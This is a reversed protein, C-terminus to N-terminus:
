MCGAKRSRSTFVRRHRGDDEPRMASWHRKSRLRKSLKTDWMRFFCVLSEQGVARVYVGSYVPGLKKLADKETFNSRGVRVEGGM